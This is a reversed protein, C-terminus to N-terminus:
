KVAYTVLKAQKAEAEERTIKGCLLDMIIKVREKNNEIEEETLSGTEEPLALTNMEIERGIKDAVVNQLAKIHAITPFETMEDEIIEAAMIFAKNSFSRHIAKFLKGSFFVLEADTKPYPFLIRWGKVTKAVTEQQLEM